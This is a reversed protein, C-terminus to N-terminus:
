GGHQHGSQQTQAKLREVLGMKDYEESGQQPNFPNMPPMGGVGAGGSEPVVPMQPQPPMQGPLGAPAPQQQQPAAGAPPAAPPVFEQGTLTKYQSRHMSEVHRIASVLNQQQEQQTPVYNRAAYQRNFNDIVIKVMQASQEPSRAVLPAEAAVIPERLGSEIANLHNADSRQRHEAALKEELRQVRDLAEQAEAPTKPQQSEPPTGQVQGGSQNVVEMIAAADGAICRQLLAVQTPDGLQNLQMKAAILDDVTSEAQTGDPMQFSLLTDRSVEDAPTEIGAPVLPQQPPAAAPPPPSGAAPQAAPQPQGPEAAPTAPPATAPASPTPLSAGGAGGGPDQQLLKRLTM